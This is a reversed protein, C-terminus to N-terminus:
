AALDTPTAQKRISLYGPRAKKKKKQKKNYKSERSKVDSVKNNYYKTHCLLCVLNIVLVMASVGGPVEGVRARTGAVGASRRATRFM